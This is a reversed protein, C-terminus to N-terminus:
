AEIFQKKYAIYFIFMVMIFNAGVVSIRELTYGVFSPENLLYSIQQSYTIKAIKEIGENFSALMPLFSLILGLPITLGTGGAQNRAMLGVTFGILISCISGLMMSLVFSVFESGSWGGLFAFCLTGIHTGLFIFSGVGLLYTIPKVNALMLVKLTNKEKEEAVVSATAVIPLFVMHMSAFTMIFFSEKGVATAVTSMMIFGILPYVIYLVLVQMNKITDKFQKIFIAKAKDLQM